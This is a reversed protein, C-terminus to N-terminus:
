CYQLCMLKNLNITNMELRTAVNHKSCMSHFGRCCLVMNPKTKSKKMKMRFISGNKSFLKKRITLM